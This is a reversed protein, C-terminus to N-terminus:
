MHEMVLNVSRGADPAFYGTILSCACNTRDLALMRGDTHGREGVLPGVGSYSEGMRQFCQM